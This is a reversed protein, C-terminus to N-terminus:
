FYCKQLVSFSIRALPYKPSIRKCCNFQYIYTIINRLFIEHDALNGLKECGQLWPLSDFLFHSYCANQLSAHSHMQSCADERMKQWTFPAVGILERVCLFLSKWLIQYRARRDVKSPHPLDHSIPTRSWRRNEREGEASEAVWFAGVVRPLAHSFLIEMTRGLVQHRAANNLNM